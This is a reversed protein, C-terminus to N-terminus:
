KGGDDLLRIYADRKAPSGTLIAELISAKLSEDNVNKGHGAMRLLLAGRSVKQEMDEASLGEWGPVKTQAVSMAKSLASRAVQQEPTLDVAASGDGGGVGLMGDVKRYIERAQEGARKKEEETATSGLGKAIGDLYEARDLLTKVLDSQSMGTRDSGGRERQTQLARMSDMEANERAILRAARPDSPDVPILNMNDGPVLVQGGATYMPPGDALSAMLAIGRLKSEQDKISVNFRQEEQALALEAMRTQASMTRLALEQQYDARRLQNEEMQAEALAQQIELREADLDLARDQQAMRTQESMTRLALEQQYDARRLQNEEMQAEALAQQIELREADLDLARDQQAMGIGARMGAALPTGFDAAQQVYPLGAATMQNALAASQQFADAM